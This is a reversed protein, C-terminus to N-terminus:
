YKLLVKILFWCQIRWRPLSILFIPNSDDLSCALVLSCDFSAEHITWVLCKYSWSVCNIDCVEALVVLIHRNSLYTPTKIKGLRSIPITGNIVINKVTYCGTTPSLSCYIHILSDDQRDGWQGMFFVEGIEFSPEVRGSQIRKDWDWVTETCNSCQGEKQWRFNQM